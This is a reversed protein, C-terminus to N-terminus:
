PFMQIEDALTCDPDGNANENNTKLMVRNGNAYAMLIAAKMTKFDDPDSFHSKLVRIFHTSWLSGVGPKTGTEWNMTIHMGQWNWAGLLVTHITGVGCSHNAAQASTSGVTALVAAFLIRRITRKM